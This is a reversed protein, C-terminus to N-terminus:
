ASPTRLMYVLVVGLDRALADLIDVAESATLDDYEESEGDEHTATITWREAM